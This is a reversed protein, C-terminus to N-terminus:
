VAVCEIISKPSKTPIINTIKFGAADLIKKFDEETREHGGTMILMNLDIFKGFHPVNPGPILIEILLLKSNEPMAKRCNELIEISRQNDWDHIIWKLIYLDGGGPVSKFFDGSTCQCRNSLQAAGINKQAAEMLHPMEFLVGKTGPNAALITTLLTADGGAVDIVTGSSAFDYSGVISANEVQTLSNMAEGFIRGNEPNQAYFDWVPMKFTDEFATEGTKLAHMMNGWADYHDEGLEAIAFARLSGPVGSRLTASLPTTSFRGEGDESFIGSGALTRMLRYLSPAHMGTEAALEEANKAGEELLDALGLKAAAYIGRSLWFGSIMKLMAKPPPVANNNKPKTEEM